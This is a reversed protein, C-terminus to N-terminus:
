LGAKIYKKRLNPMNSHIFLSAYFIKRFSLSTNSLPFKLIFNCLKFVGYCLFAFLLIKFLFFGFSIHVFYPNDIFNNMDDIYPIEMFLFLAALVFFLGIGMFEPWKKGVFSRSESVMDPSLLRCDVNVDFNNDFSDIEVIFSEGPRLLSVDFSLGEGNDLTNNINDLRVLSDKKFLRGGAFSVGCEVQVSSVFDKKEIPFIGSNMFLIYRRFRSKESEPLDNADSSYGDQIFNVFIPVPHSIIIKLLGQKTSKQYTHRAYILALVALISGFLGIWRDISQEVIIQHM